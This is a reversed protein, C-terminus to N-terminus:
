EPAQGDAPREGIRVRLEVQRQNKGSGRLVLAKMETGPKFGAILNIAQNANDVPQDNIQTLIDGPEVGAQQAPGGRVIGAIAVGKQAPSGIHAALQADLTQVEIGLWGRVVKGDRIISQMVTKALSVPIAFGIGMNGGSQSFIASNIGVLNGNVDVLAGGSNGPNIAADTQIFDEFTNIGLGQRGLASVIGQTVTQGVGFPNGIALVVDGVQLPTERLPLVPLNNLDIKIVALDSGPDTGIVKAKTERGDKLAVVIEDAREVVHNNTLVYGEPSVIVGSGLSSQQREQPGQNGFFRRFLPDEMLPNRTRVKQTTFINVVTPAAVNVAAAYSAPGPPGAAVAAPSPAQREASFTPLAKDSSVAPWPRQMFVYALVGALLLWPLLTKFRM